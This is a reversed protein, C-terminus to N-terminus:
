NQAARAEPPGDEAELRIASKKDPYKGQIPEYFARIRDMDARVDGSLELTPGFGGVKRSFDLFSCVVPVKAERAIVYFGSKWHDRHSRTGSPPIVLLFRDRAGFQDVMQGVLDQPATRDVAVAGLWRLFRDRVPGGFVTHKVMWHIRLGFYWAFANVLLGDVLATHPAAIVVAKDVQPPSGEAKWGMAALVVRAVARKSASADPDSTSAVGAAHRLPAASPLPM